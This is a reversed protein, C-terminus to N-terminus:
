KNGKWRLSAVEWLGLAKDAFLGDQETCDENILQEPEPFGFPARQLNLPRWDGTPVDRNDPEATFTTALLYRINSRKVNEVARRADAFSLHVLCDRVLLLDANPLASRTLDLVMFTRNSSRHAAANASIVEPLLDAGIYRVGPLSVGAMWHCDGCPLDLLTKVGLLDCLQPLARRIKATQSHSAGPGSPSEPGAWLNTEYAHRFREETSLTHGRAIRHAFHNPDFSVRRRRDIM